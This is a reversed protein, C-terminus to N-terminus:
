AAIAGSSSEVNRACEAIAALEPSRRPRQDAGASFAAIEKRVSVQEELDMALLYSAWFMLRATTESGAFSMTACQDRIEADALAEGTEADSVSWVSWPSRSRGGKDAVGQTV